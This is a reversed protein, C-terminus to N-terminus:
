MLSKLRSIKIFKKIFKNVNERRWDARSLGGGSQKYANWSDDDPFDEGDNYSDYPYFYDDFHVGDLDYRKVLDMVVAASHDQTGKKGPDLWWM